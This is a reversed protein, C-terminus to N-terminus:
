ELQLPNYDYYAFLTYATGSVCGTSDGRPTRWGHGTDIFDETAYPLCTQGQGSPSPSSIIMKGLSSLYEDAKVAYAHGKAKLGKKYFYDSMIRMSIVMQATWESPVIGGRGVNCEAAFDFGKIRVLQGDPRRFVTEVACNEEAFEMIRDPNLGLEELKEPGIAAISWAYTDTAITADGKGRNVPVDPKGYTYKILWKLIKERADRYEQNGTVQYLMDFFAYADLNHETSYWEINPGGRIGGEQDQGQLIIMQRAIEEALPFYKKNQSKESFHVIAIGLWINPGATVSYEAPEGDKAYYANLFLSNKRVANHVFFELTKEARYFDSFYTYAQLALSQDYLFAWDDVQKDGEFSITLGTRPSQHVQLWQYMKDLNAKELRSKMKDMHLLDETILSEQRQLDLLKTQLANKEMGLKEILVNLEKLKSASRSKEAEAIEQFGSKEQMLNQVRAELAALDIQLEQRQRAIEKVKQKAVSSEQVIQVLQGVLAKNGKILKMNLYSGLVFGIGLIAILILAAPAFLKKMWAYRMIMASQAPDIKEYSLGILYKDTGQAERFWAIKALAPVEERKLPIDIKLVLDAKKERLAVVVDRCLNNVALCLGGKGVDRTFGQLWDSLFEERGRSKLRFEVPFVTDLRIYRRREPLPEEKKQM